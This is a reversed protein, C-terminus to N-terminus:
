STLAHLLTSSVRVLLLNDLTLNRIAIDKNHCHRVGLLLNRVVEKADFETYKKKQIIRNILIDGQIRELVIYTADPDEYVEYLCVVHTRGGEAIEQLVAIEDNLAAFDSPHLDKRIVKKVSYEKKSLLNLASHIKALSGM